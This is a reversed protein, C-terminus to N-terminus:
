DTGSGEEARARLDALYDIRDQEHDGCPCRGAHKEAALGLMRDREALAADAQRVQKELDLKEKIYDGIRSQLRGCQACKENFSAEWEDREAEAQTLSTNLLGCENRQMWIVHKLRKNEAELEDWIADNIKM